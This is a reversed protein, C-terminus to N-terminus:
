ACRMSTSRQNGGIIGRNMYTSEQIWVRIIWPLLCWRSRCAPHHLGSVPALIGCLQKGNIVPLFLSMTDTRRQMSISRIAARNGGVTLAAFLGFITRM